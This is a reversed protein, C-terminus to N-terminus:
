TKIHECLAELAAKLAGKDKKEIASLLDSAVAGLMDFSEDHEREQSEIPRLRWRGQKKFRFCKPRRQDSFANLNTWFPLNRM